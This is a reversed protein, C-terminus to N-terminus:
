PIKGQALNYMHMIVYAYCPVLIGQTFTLSISYGGVIDFVINLTFIGVFVLLLVLKAFLAVWPAQKDEQRM